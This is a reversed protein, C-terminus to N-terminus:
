VRHFDADKGVVQQVLPRGAYQRFLDLKARGSDSYAKTGIVDAEVYLKLDEKGLFNMPCLAKPDISARGMIKTGAFSYFVTDGTANIYFANEKHPTVPDGNGNVAFAGPYTKADYVNYLASYDIGAGINIFHADCVDYNAIAAGSWVMTPPLTASALIGELKLGKLVPAFNGFNTELRLGLLRAQPFDLGMTFYIPYTGTRFLYEGLNRVDPNYKYKFYGIQAAFSPVEASGFHYQAYADDIAVAQTSTKTMRSANQNVVPYSFYLQTLLGVRMDLNNKYNAALGITAVQDEIWGGTIKGDYSGVNTSTLGNLSGSVIDGFEFHGYAYPKLLLGAPLEIRGKSSDSEAFGLSVLALSIIAGFFVCKKAM